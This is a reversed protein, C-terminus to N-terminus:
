MILLTFASLCKCDYFNSISHRFFRILHSYITLFCINRGPLQFSLCKSKFVHRKAAKLSHRSSLVNFTRRERSRRVCPSNSPLQLVPLLLLLLLLPLSFLPPSVSLCVSVSVCPFSISLSSAVYLLNFIHYVCRLFTAFNPGCQFRSCRERQGAEREEEEEERNQRFHQKKDISTEGQTNTGYAYLIVPYSNTKRKKRERKAARPHVCYSTTLSVCDPSITVM